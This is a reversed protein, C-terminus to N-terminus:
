RSRSPGSATVGPEVVIPVTVDHETGTGSEPHAGDADGDELRHDYLTTAPLRGDRRLDAVSRRPSTAPHVRAWRRQRRRVVVYRRRAVVAGICAVVIGAGVLALLPPSGGEDLDGTAAVGDPEGTAADAAGDSSLEVPDPPAATAAVTAPALAGSSTPAAAEPDDVVGLAQATDLDVAGTVQLEPRTRQFAAVAVMTDNGYEGDAGGPLDIGEAILAEQVATVTPGDAGPVLVTWPGNVGDLDEGAVVLDVVEAIYATVADVGSPTLHVGDGAFWQSARASYASWDAIQLYGDSEAAAAALQDNYDDFTEVSSYQQPDSYDVDTGVRLTLWVVHGVGQRRAEALVGDIAEDISWQPDNYGSMVVLVDGLEGDLQQMGTIVNDSRYGERSFCSQEYTRRCSEASFVFNFQELPGYDDYWRVGALTSDGFLSIDVADNGAFHRVTQDALAPTSGGLLAAAAVAIAAVARRAWTAPPAVALTRAAVTM